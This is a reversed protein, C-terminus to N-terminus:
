ARRVMEAALSSLVAIAAVQPLWISGSISTLSRGLEQTVTSVFDTKRRNVEQRQSLYVTSRSDCAEGSTHFPNLGM